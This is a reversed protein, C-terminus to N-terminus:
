CPNLASEISSVGAYIQRPDESKLGLNAVRHFEDRHRKAEVLDENVFTENVLSEYRVSILGSSHQQWVGQDDRSSISFENWYSTNARSGMKWPRFQLKTELGANPPILMATGFTVDRIQFGAIKKTKDSIQCSAEVAMVLMGAAPYLISSQVKHHEIWPNESVRLHNVWSPELVNSHESPAGFFDNRPYQRLRFANTMASEHWYKHSRNWPHPPIDTLAGLNQNSDKSDNVLSLKTPYGHQFLSGTAELATLTAGKGRNLVSLYPLGSANRDQTSLIQKLPGQLAAHPGVELLFNAYSSKQVTRRKGPTYSLASQVAASFQVPSVMNQVWYESNLDEGKILKGTVSSFMPIDTEKPKAVNLLADRYKDAIALMHPSHYATQVKLTRAFIKDAELLQQVQLIGATDGSLTVNMPSNVCAVVIKGETVRELYPKIEEGLGAALMAGKGEPITGSLVGRHFSIEWASERVIAGKAYAAAIEGSSHGAVLAPKINWSALLDVLAVQLATCIPQSYEPKSLLSRQEEKLLEEIPENACVNLYNIKSCSGTLSWSCGLSTLFSEATKLSDSFASYRYLERGMHAWQAGQGTFIYLLNPVKSSRIAKPPAAELKEILERVSSAITYYKWPLVSRRENLTISLRALFEPENPLSVRDRLYNLFLESTRISGSQESSSWAFIRPPNHTTDLKPSAAESDSEVSQISSVSKSENSDDVSGTNSSSNSIPTDLTGVEITSHVGTLGRSKLYHYADDVICHANTGGYGFSNV